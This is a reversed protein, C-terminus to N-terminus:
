IMSILTLVGGVIFVLINGFLPYLVRNKLPYKRYFIISVIEEIILFIVSLIILQKFSYVYGDLFNSMSLIISILILGIGNTILFVSKNELLSFRCLYFIFAKAVLALALFIFSMAFINYYVQQITIEKNEFNLVVTSNYAEITIEKSTIIEINNNNDVLQIKFQNPIDGVFQHYQGRKSNESKVKIIELDCLEIDIFEDELDDCNVIQKNVLFKIDYEDLKLSSKTIYLDLSKEKKRLADVKTSTLGVFIVVFLIQFFKKM